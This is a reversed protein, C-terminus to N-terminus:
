ATGSESYCQLGSGRLLAETEERAGRALKYSSWLHSRAWFASLGPNAECETAAWAAAHPADAGKCCDTGCQGNCAM